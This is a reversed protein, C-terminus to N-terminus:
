AGDGGGQARALLFAAAKDELIAADLPNGGSSEVMSRVAEVSQGTKEAILGYRALRDADDVVLSERRAVAELVLQRRVSYEAEAMVDRRRDPELDDLGPASGGLGTGLLASGLAKVIERARDEVMAVPVEFPNREVLQEIIARQRRAEGRELRARFISDRVGTRLDALSEAGLLKAFGDDLAPLEARLLRLLEVTADCEAGAWVPNAFQAPVRVRGTRSEGPSLGVVLDFLYASDADTAAVLLGPDQFDPYGESRLTLAVEAVDDPTMPRAPEIPVLRRAQERMSELQEDLEADTVEAPGPEARLEGYERIEIEPRLVVTATVSLDAGRVLKGPEITPATALRLGHSRVAEDVAEAALDQALKSRVDRGLQQELVRRPVHGRRFGPLKVEKRLRELAADLRRDVTASAVTLTIKRTARDINEIHVDM